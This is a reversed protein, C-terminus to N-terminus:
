SLCSQSDDTRLHISVKSVIEKISPYLLEKSLLSQLMGQMAPLIDGLGGMDGGAGDGFGGDPGFAM